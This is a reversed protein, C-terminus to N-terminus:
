LELQERSLPLQGKIPNEDGFGLMEVDEENISSPKLSAPDTMLEEEPDRKLKPQPYMQDVESQTTKGKILREVEDKPYGQCVGFEKLLCRLVM